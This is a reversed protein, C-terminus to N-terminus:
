ELHAIEFSCLYVGKKLSPGWVPDVEMIVRGFAYCPGWLTSGLPIHKLSDIVAREGLGILPAFSVDWSEATLGAQRPAVITGGLFKNSSPTDLFVDVGMEADRVFQIKRAQVMFSRLLDHIHQRGEQTDPIGTSDQLLKLTLSALKSQVISM